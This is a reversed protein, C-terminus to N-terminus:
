VILQKINQCLKEANTISGEVELYEGDPSLAERVSEKKELDVVVARM